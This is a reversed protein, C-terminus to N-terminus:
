FMWDSPYFGKAHDSSKKIKGSKAAEEVVKCAYEQSPPQRSDNEYFAVLADTLEDSIYKGPHKRVFGAITEMDRELVSLKRNM